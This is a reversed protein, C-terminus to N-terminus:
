GEGLRSSMRFVAKEHPKEDQTEIGNNCIINYFNTMERDWSQTKTSSLGKPNVCLANNVLSTQFDFSTPAYTLTGQLSDSRNFFRRNISTKLFRILGDWAEEVQNPHTKIEFLTEHKLHPLIELEKEHPPCGLSNIFTGWHKPNVVNEEKGGFIHVPITIESARSICLRGAEIMQWVTNANAGGTYHLPDHTARWHNGTFHSCDKLEVGGVDLKPLFYSLIRLLWNINVAGAPEFCPSSLVLGAFL